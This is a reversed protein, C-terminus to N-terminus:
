INTMRQEDLKEIAEELSKTETKALIQSEYENSLETVIGNRKANLLYRLGDKKEQGAELGISEIALNALLEGTLEEEINRGISTYLVNRVGKFNFIIGVKVKRKVQNSTPNDPYNYIRIM